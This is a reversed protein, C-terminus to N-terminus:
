LDQLLTKLQASRAAGLRAEIRRQAEDWLPAGDKMVACGAATLTITAERQDSGAASAVLGMRELVKVNRGVTSRDLEASQALETLSLPAARDIRRLLAFQAINIGVPAMAEDYIATLKRTAARLATCYCATEMTRTYARMSM